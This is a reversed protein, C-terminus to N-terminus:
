NVKRGSNEVVEYKIKVYNFVISCNSCKVDALSWTIFKSEKNCCPCISKIMIGFGGGGKIM